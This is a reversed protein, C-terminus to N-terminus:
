VGAGHGIDLLDSESFLSRLGFGADALRQAGGFDRDLLCQVGAVDAGLATLATAGALARRGTFVVDELLVARMGRYHEGDFSVREEPELRGLLLPVGTVQAVAAGLAASPVSTVAICESSRPLEDALLRAARSLLGPRSLVFTKEFYRDGAPSHESPRLVYGGRGLDAALERRLDDRAVTLTRTAV